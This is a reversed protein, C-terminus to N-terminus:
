HEIISVPKERARSLAAGAFLCGFLVVHTEVSAALSDLYRSDHLSNWILRVLWPVNLALTEGFDWFCLTVAFLLVTLMSRARKCRGVVWGAAALVACDFGLGVTAIWGAGIFSASWHMLPREVFYAIGLLTAWGALIARAWVFFRM